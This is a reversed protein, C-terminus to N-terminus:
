PREARDRSLQEILTVDGMDRDVMRRTEEASVLYPGFERNLDALYAAIAPDRPWPQGPKRSLKYKRM